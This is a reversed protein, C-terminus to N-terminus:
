LLEGAEGRHRHDVTERIENVRALYHSIQERNLFVESGVEAADGHGPDPIAVIHRIRPDVCGVAEAKVEPQRNRGAIVRIWLDELARASGRRDGQSFVRPLGGGTSVDDIRIDPSGHTLLGFGVIASSRERLE